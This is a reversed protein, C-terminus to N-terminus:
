IAKYIMGVLFIQTRTAASVSVNALWDVQAGFSENPMIWLTRNEIKYGYLNSIHGEGNQIEGNTLAATAGDAAFLGSPAVGAPIRNLPLQLYPRNGTFTFTFASTNYVLRFDAISTGYQIVFNFGYLAFADPASLASPQNLNTESYTKSAIAGAADAQGLPRTFYKRQNINSAPMTETDYVPNRLPRLVTMKGQYVMTTLPYPASFAQSVQEEAMTQAQM